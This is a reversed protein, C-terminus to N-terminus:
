TCIARYLQSYKQAMSHSDFLERVRVVANAALKDQLDRDGLVRLMQDALHEEKGPECLIGSAEHVVTEEVGLVDFAVIPTGIAMAELMVLGLGERLSPLVVLNARHMLAWMRTLQFQRFVLKGAGLGLCESMKRIRELRGSSGKVVGSLDASAIFTVDKRKRLVLAAALLFSEFGPKEPRM